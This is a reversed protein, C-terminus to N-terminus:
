LCPTDLASDCNGAGYRTFMDTIEVKAYQPATIFFDVYHAAATSQNASDYKWFYDKSNNTEQSTDDFALAKTINAAAVGASAFPNITGVISSFATWALDPDINPDDASDTEPAVLMARQDASPYLSGTKCHLNVGHGAFTGDWYSCGTEGYGAVALHFLEETEGLNKHNLLLLGSVMSMDGEEDTDEETDIKFKNDFDEPDGGNAWEPKCHDASVSGTIGALAGASVATTALVKRRRLNNEFM